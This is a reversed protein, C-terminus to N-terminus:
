KSKLKLYEEKSIFVIQHLRIDRSNVGYLMKDLATRYKINYKDTMEKITAFMENTVENLIPRAGSSRIGTFQKLKDKTKESRPVGLKTKLLRSKTYETMERGLGAKSLKSRTEKSVIINVSGDGGDTMNTLSGLKLDSRGYMNILLCELDCADEWSISSYLIDVKIKSKNRINNWHKNRGSNFENARKFKNDSGIGIYFVENKDLRTHRYVYAM